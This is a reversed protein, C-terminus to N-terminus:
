LPYKSWFAEPNIKGIEKWEEFDKDLEEKDYEDEYGLFVFHTNSCQYCHPSPSGQVYITGCEICLHHPPKM